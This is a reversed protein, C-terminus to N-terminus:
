HQIRRELIPLIPAIQKMNDDTIPVVGEYDTNNFFDKGDGDAQFGLLAEKVKLYEGDTLGPGAMFMLHLLQRTEGLLRLRSRVKFPMHGLLGGVVIAADAKNEAVSMLAANHSRKYILTVDKNVRIGYDQLTLEGLMSVLALRDPLAIVAGKLDVIRHYSAGTSVVIDGELIRSFRALRRHKYRKEAYLAFHPATHYFDYEGAISRKLYTASDPASVVILNRHLKRELYDILPQYRRILLEPSLYPLLGFRLPRTTDGAKSVTEGTYVHAAQVICSVSIGIILVATKM